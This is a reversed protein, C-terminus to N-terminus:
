LEVNFFYVPVVFIKFHQGEFNNYDALTPLGLVFRIVKSGSIDFVCLLGGNLGCDLGM